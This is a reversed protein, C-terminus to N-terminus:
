FHTETEITLLYHFHCLRVYREPESQKMQFIHINKMLKKRHLVNINLNLSWRNSSSPKTLSDMTRVLMEPTQMKAKRGHSWAFYSTILCNIWFAPRFFRVIKNWVWLMWQGSCLQLCPISKCFLRSQRTHTRHKKRQCFKHCNQRNMAMGCISVPWTLGLVCAVSSVFSSRGM